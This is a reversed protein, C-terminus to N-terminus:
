GQMLGLPLILLKLILLRAPSWRSSASQTDPRARARARPSGNNRNVTIGKSIRSLDARPPRRRAPFRTPTPATASCRWSERERRVRERERERERESGGKRECVGHAADAHAGNRQLALVYGSAAGGAAAAAGDGVWAGGEGVWAGYSGGGM